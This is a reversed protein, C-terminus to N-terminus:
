PAVHSQPLEPAQEDNADVNLARRVEHWLDHVYEFVICTKALREMAAADAHGAYARLLAARERLDFDHFFALSALDVYPDSCAAYEWDLLTLTGTDILNLSHVDTHCLSLVPTTRALEEAISRARLRSDDQLLPTERGLTTMTAAYTDMAECWNVAPVNPPTLQHLRRLLQALREIRVPDHMDAPRCTPGLYRTVVVHHQPDCLLVEPGIGARAVIELVTAEAERDIHLSRANPNNIRVVVADRSTRVLWSDNTLGDKLLTVSAIQRESVGLSDAAWKGPSM